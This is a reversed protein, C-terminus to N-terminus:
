PLRATHQLKYEDEMNGSLRCFIFNQVNVHKVHLRGQKAYGFPFGGNRSSPDNLTRLSPTKCGGGCVKLRELEVINLMCNLELWCEWSTKSTEPADVHDCHMALHQPPSQAKVPTGSFSNNQCSMVPNGVPQTSHQHLFQTSNRMKNEAGVNHYSLNPCASATIELQCMRLQKHEGFAHRCQVDLM